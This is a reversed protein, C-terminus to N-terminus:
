KAELARYHAPTWAATFRGCRVYDCDIGERAILEEIFPFSSAADHAIAKAREEGYTKALSSAALKLGGSVMGGNRSSAGWGIREADLVTASHGLRQLTLAASLGAYGGGVIAVDAEGPLGDPQLPPEADEWWYPFERFEPAFIGDM